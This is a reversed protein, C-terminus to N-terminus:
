WEQVEGTYLVVKGGFKDKNGTTLVEVMGSTSDETTVPASEIGWLHAAANGM